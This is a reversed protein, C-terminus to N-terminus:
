QKIENARLTFCKRSVNENLNRKSSIWEEYFNYSFFKDNFLKQEIM